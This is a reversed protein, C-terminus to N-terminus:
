ILTQLCARLNGGRSSVDLKRRLNQRHFDITSKSLHLEDAIQKSSRGQQILKAVKLEIPSLVRFVKRQDELAVNLVRRLADLDAVQRTNLPGHQELAKLLPEVVHSLEADIESKVAQRDNEREKLLVRMASKYDELDVVVESLSSQVTELKNILMAQEAKQNEVQLLLALDNNMVKQIEEILGYLELARNESSRDMVCITGFPFADPWSVPFGLYFSMGCEYHPASQWRISDTANRVILPEQTNVVTDCYIDRHRKGPDTRAFPNDAGESKLALQITTETVETVLVASTHTAKAAQDILHQWNDFIYQPIDPKCRLAAESSILQLSHTMSLNVSM